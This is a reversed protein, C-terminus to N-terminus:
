GTTRPTGQRPAGAPKGRTAREVLVPPCAHIRADAFRSRERVVQERVLSSDLGACGRSLRNELYTFQTDLKESAIADM